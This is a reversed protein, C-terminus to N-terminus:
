YRKLPYKLRIKVEVEGKDLRETLACSAGKFPTGYYGSDDNNNEDRM